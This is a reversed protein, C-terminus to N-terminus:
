EPPGPYHGSLSRRHPGQMVSHSMPEPIFSKNPDLGYCCFTTPIGNWQGACVTLETEAYGRLFQKGLVYHRNNMMNFLMM